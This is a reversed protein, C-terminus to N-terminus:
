QLAYVSYTAVSNIRKVSIIFKQTNTTTLASGTSSGVTFGSFTISGASAGNTVMVDVECDSAPAAFTHAGNNTYYQVNQNSPDVTFTGSSVTGGSYATVSYGKTITATNGTTLVNSSVAPFTMTTSDTGALTLSNNVTVTKGSAITLTGTTSTITLGNYTKNTFAQSAALVALTDTAAPITLTVTGLAGAVPSLTITGSTANQFGLTGVTTGAVGLVPTATIAPIGTAGTNLIGGNATALGAVTNASSSYLIQSVTTTAPWTATSWAPAASSGSQLMQRATATGSLIAGASATSYFVGGNSPTLNANTGGNAMPVLGTIMSAVDVKGWAPAVGVGGSLLVNGVAIDALKSLASTTSAYLLDGVAYSAIGTGGNPAALVSSGVAGSQSLDISGFALATGSRRLIQFDSAAAIDAVNALANTANGIISLAASQRLMADTVKNNGIATVFSDASWSVDGSGAATQLATGSFALTTGLTVSTNLAPSGTPNGALSVADLLVAPDTWITDYDANTAKALFQDTLGGAPVNGTALSLSSPSIKYTLGDAAHNIILFDASLNPSGLATLGTLAKMANPFTSKSSVNGGAVDNIAFSDAVAMAAKAPLNNALFGLTLDGTLLGGGSLGSNAPTNISLTNPVFGSATNAIEALTCRKDTGGQVIWAYESGDVSSATPLDLMPTDAM